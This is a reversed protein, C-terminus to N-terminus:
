SYCLGTSCGLIGLLDIDSCRHSPICEPVWPRYGRWHFISCNAWAHTGQSDSFCGLNLVPSAVLSGTSAVALEAGM